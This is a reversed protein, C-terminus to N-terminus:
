GLAAFSSAARLPRCVDGSSAPWRRHNRQSLGLIRPSKRAEICLRRAAGSHCCRPYGRHRYRCCPATATGDRKPAKQDDHDRDGRVVGDQRASGESGPLALRGASQTQANGHIADEPPVGQRLDHLPHVYTPGSRSRATSWRPGLRPVGARRRVLPASLSGSSGFEIAYVPQFPQTTAKVSQIKDVRYCRIERSDAPIGYLLLAGASSRRLSYPEILRTSGNYGLEVLLHNVGAFRVVELSARGLDGVDPAAVLNPGREGDRRDSRGVGRNSRGGAVPLPGQSGGLVTRLAAAGAAPPRAHEGVRIRARGAAALFQHGRSDSHRDGQERV